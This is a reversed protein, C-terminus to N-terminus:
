DKGGHLTFYLFLSDRFFVYCPLISFTAPKPQNLRNMSPIPFYLNGDMGRLVKSLCFEVNLCSFPSKELEFVDASTNM